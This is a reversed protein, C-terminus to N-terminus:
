LASWFLSLISPAKRSVYSAKVWGSTWFCKMVMPRLKMMPMDASICLIGPGSKTFSAASPMSDLQFFADQLVLGSHLALFFISISSPM